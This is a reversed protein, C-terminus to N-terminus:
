ICGTNMPPVLDIANLASKVSLTYLIKMGGMMMDRLTSYAQITIVSEIKHIHLIVPSFALIVPLLLLALDMSQYSLVFGLGLISLAMVKLPRNGSSTWFKTYFRPHTTMVIVLIVLLPGALILLRQFIPLEPDLFRFTSVQFFIVLGLITNLVTNRSPKLSVPSLDLSHQYPYIAM